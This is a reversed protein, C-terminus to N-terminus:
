NVELEAKKLKEILEDPEWPKSIIEKVVGAEFNFALHSNDAYGTLIIRYIEPKIDKVKALLDCGNMNPMLYDSIVIKIDSNSKIQEIADEPSNATVVNYDKELLFSLSRTVIPEDDLCLVTTKM